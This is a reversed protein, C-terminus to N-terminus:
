AGMPSLDVRPAVYPVFRSRILKASSAAAARTMLELRLLFIEALMAAEWQLPRLM